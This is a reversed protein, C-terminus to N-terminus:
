SVEGVSFCFVSCSILFQFSVCLLPVCNSFSWWLLRPSVLLQDRCSSETILPQFPLLAKRQKFYPLSCDVFSMEQALSCCGFDFSVAFNFFLWRVMVVHQCYPALQCIVSRAWLFPPLLSISWHDQGLSLPTLCLFLDGTILCPSFGIGFCSLQHAVSSIGSGSSLM